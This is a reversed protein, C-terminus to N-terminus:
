QFVGLHRKAIESWRFRLLEIEILSKDLGHSNSGLLKSIARTIAIIDKPDVSIVFPSNFLGDIGENKTCVLACGQSLAEIYVLGFTEKLSTMAFVRSSRYIDRLKDRSDIVGRVELFSPLPDISILKKLEAETGGALVLKFDILRSSILKCATILRALNKNDDFRGVFCAQMPRETSTKLRNFHWYENIGNPIVAVTKANDIIKKWRNNFREYHAQSIFILANSRRVFISMLWHYHPLRPIFINIDTNRVILTYNIHYFISFLFLVLGDSWFNHAIFNVNNQKHKLYKRIEPRCKHFIYFIKILPLYKLHNKFKIFKIEIGKTNYELNKIDSSNRYPVFVIQGFNIENLSKIMEFHVRSSVFNNCLHYIM